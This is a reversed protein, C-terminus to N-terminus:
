SLVSAWYEIQALVREKATGNYSRKSDVSRKPSFIAKYEEDSLDIGLIKERETRDVDRLRMGREESLRILRGVAKHASARDVGRKILEEMLDTAYLYDNELVENIREQKVGMGRVIEKMVDIMPILEDLTSFFIEKDEQLDRNYTMPLAKLLLSFQLKAGIVKGARARILELADPNKKHPMISSGTCFGEPLNLFGFESSSYIIWDEAMRSLLLAIREMIYLAGLFYDRNAIADMSNLYPAKLGLERAMSEADLGISTGAGACATLPCYQNEVTWDIFDVVRQFGSIFSLLYHSLYVVQASQLHTYSPIIVDSLEESKELIARQLGRIKDKLTILIDRIALISDCAVLDNRSRATHVKDALVGVIERLSEQVFSHIDEEEYDPERNYLDLIKKLGLEIRRQEQESLIGAKALAKVHVLTAKVDYPFLFRDAKRGRSFNWMLEDMGEKFRGGWFQGTKEM